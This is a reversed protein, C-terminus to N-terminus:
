SKPQVNDDDVEEITIRYDRDSLTYLDDITMSAIGHNLKCAFRISIRTSLLTLGSRDLKGILVKPTEM